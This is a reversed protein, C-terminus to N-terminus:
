YFPAKHPVGKRRNMAVNVDLRPQCVVRCSVRPLSTNSNCHKKNVFQTTAISPLTRCSIAGDIDSGCSASSTSGSWARPSVTSDLVSNPTVLKDEFVPLLENDYKQEKRGCTDTVTQHLKCALSCYLYPDQLSRNCKICFKGSGKFPRLMPRENLFVVKASNTTYPQVFSCNMLKQADSLRIVDHYVYRRVQLLRHPRHHPLCHTCISISCDFCFINKENKKVFEHVMCPSYFREALLTKLLQCISNEGVM